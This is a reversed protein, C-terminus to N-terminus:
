SAREPNKTFNKYYCDTVLDFGLYGKALITTLKLAFDVFQELIPTVLRILVMLDVVYAMNKRLM